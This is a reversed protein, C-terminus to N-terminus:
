PMTSGEKEYLDEREVRGRNTDDRDAIWSEGTPFKEVIDDFNVDKCKLFQEWQNGTKIGNRLFRM